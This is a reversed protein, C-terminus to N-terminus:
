KSTNGNSKSREYNQGEDPYRLKCGGDSVKPDRSFECGRCGDRNPYVCEPICM